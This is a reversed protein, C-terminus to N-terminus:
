GSAAFGFTWLGFDLAIPTAGIKSAHRSFLLTKVFSLIQKAGTM